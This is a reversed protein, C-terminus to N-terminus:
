PLHHFIMVAYSRVVYSGGERETAISRWCGPGCHEKVRCEASVFSICPRPVGIMLMKGRREMTWLRHSVMALESKDFRFSMEVQWQRAYALVMGFADAANNIPDTTLLLWPM